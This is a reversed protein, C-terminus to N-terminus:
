HRPYFAFEFQNISCDPLDGKNKFLPATTSSAWDVPMYGFYVITNFFYTLWNGAKGSLEELKWIDAPLDDPGKINTMSNSSALM